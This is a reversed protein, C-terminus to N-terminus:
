SRGGAEGDLANIRRGTRRIARTDHDIAQPRAADSLVLRFDVSPELVDRRTLRQPPAHMGLLRAPLLEDDIIPALERLFGAGTGGLIEHRAHRALRHRQEIRRAVLRVVVGYREPM